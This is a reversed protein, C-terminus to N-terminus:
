TQDTPQSSDTPYPFEQVAKTVGERTVIGFVYGDDMVVLQMVGYKDMAHLADRGSDFRSCFRLSESRTIEGITLKGRQELPIRELDAGTIFGRLEGEKSVPISGTAQTVM